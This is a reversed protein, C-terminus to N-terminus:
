KYNVSELINGYRDVCYESTDQIKHNLCYASAQMGYYLLLEALELTPAVLTDLLLTISHKAIKGSIDHRIPKDYITTRLWTLARSGPYHLSIICVFTSFDWLSSFSERACESASLYQM